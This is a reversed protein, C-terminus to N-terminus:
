ARMRASGPRWPAAFLGLGFALVGLPLAHRWSFYVIGFEALLWWAGLAVLFLGWLQLLFVRSDMRGPLVDSAIM